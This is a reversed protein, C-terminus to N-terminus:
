EPRVIIVLPGQEPREQTAAGSGSLALMAHDAKMSQRSGCGALRGSIAAQRTDGDSPRSRSDLHPLVTMTFSAPPLNSVLCTVLLPGSAARMMETNRIYVRPAVSVNISISAQSRRGIQGPKEAAAAVPAMGAAAAILSSLLRYNM